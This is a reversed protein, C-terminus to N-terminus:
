GIVAVGAWVRAATRNVPIPGVFMADVQIMRAALTLTQTFVGGVPPGPVQVLDAVHEGAAVGITVRFLMPGTWVDPPIAGLTLPDTVGFSVTCTLPVPFRAMILRKATDPLPGVVATTPHELLEAGGWQRLEDETPFWAGLRGAPLFDPPKTPSFRELEAASGLPQEPPRYGTPQPGGLERLGPRLWWQSHWPGPM